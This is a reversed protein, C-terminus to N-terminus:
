KENRMMGYTRLKKYLTPRSCGLLEAARSVNGCCEDLISTIRRKEDENGILKLNSAPCACLEWDLGLSEASLKGGEALLVGRRVRNALERINGPWHWSLLAMKAGETFGACGLRMEASYKDLFFEALALIDEPCEMLAPQRIEFECLRHYLDERFSGCSIALAMDANTASVIRVDAKCPKRSGVPVYEKEQLVRLLMAQVELPMNGIEDLFLTGGQAAKFYGDKDGDAGTFAGKVHGFFESAALEKPVAGCNVAVFPKDKRLSHRHVTRAVSEKGSGNPGLIMVSWDTGAVRRIVVFLVVLLVLALISISASLKYSFAQVDRIRREKEALSAAVQRDMRVMLSNLAANLEKNHRRVSDGCAELYKSHEKLRVAMDDGFRQLDISKEVVQVTKKGGFLGALGKKKKKVTRVRVTRKAMDSLRGTADADFVDKRRVAQMVSLLHKEKDELLLRLTDIQMPTVRGRCLPKVSVLFSDVGLRLRHYAAYDDYSWFVVGEGSLALMGIKEHVDGSAEYISRTYDAEREIERVKSREHFLVAILGCAVAFVSAFGIFVKLQLPIVM